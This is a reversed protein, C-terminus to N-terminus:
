SQRVSQTPRSSDITAKGELDWCSRIAGCGNCALAIDYESAAVCGDSIVSDCSSGSNELYTM